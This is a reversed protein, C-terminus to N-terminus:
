MYQSEFRREIFIRSVTGTVNNSISMMKHVNIYLVFVTGFFVLVFFLFWIFLKTTIGAIQPM